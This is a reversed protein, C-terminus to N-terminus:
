LWLVLQPVLVFELKLMRGPELEPEPEPQVALKSELRFIITLVPVLELMLVLQLEQECELMLVPQIVPVLEPMLVLVPKLTQELELM